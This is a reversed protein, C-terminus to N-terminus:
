EEIMDLAEAAIRGTFYLPEDCPGRLPYEIGRLGAACRRCLSRGAKELAARQTCCPWFFCPPAFIVPSDNAPPLLRRNLSHSNM